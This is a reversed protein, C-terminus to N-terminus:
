DLKKRWSEVFLYAAITLEFAFGAVPYMWHGMLSSAASMEHGRPLFNWVAHFAWAAAWYYSSARFGFVALCIMLAFVVLELPDGSHAFSMGTWVTFILWFTKRGELPLWLSLAILALSVLPALWLSSESMSLSGVVMIETALILGMALGTLTRSWGHNLFRSEQTPQAVAATFFGTKTRWLLYVAVVIDYMLCALPLDHQSAPLSRPILDWLPHIFWMAVLFWPSWVAGALAAGMVIFLMLIEVDSQGLYVASLLWATSASWALLQPRPPLWCLLGVLIAGLPLAGWLLLNERTAVGILYSIGVAVIGAYLTQGIVVFDQRSIKM